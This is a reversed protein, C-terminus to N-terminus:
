RHLITVRLDLYGETNNDKSKCDLYVKGESARTQISMFNNMTPLNYFPEYSTSIIEKYGSGIEISEGNVSAIVVATDQSETSPKGGLPLYCRVNKQTVYLIPDDKRMSILLSLASLGLSVIIVFWILKVKGRVKDLLRPILVPILATVVTAGAGIIAITTNETM